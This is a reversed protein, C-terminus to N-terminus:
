AALNKKDVIATLAKFADKNFPQGMTHEIALLAERSGIPRPHKASKITLNVFQNALAVVKALPHTKLNRLKQPYGQGLANEHHQYVIALIDDPVIGLAQLMVMGKYSHTEYIQVEDYSMDVLTKELLEPPLAKKGIDHLLGGLSLKELTAKQSWGLEQGILVSLVSVAMCHRLLPQSCENLSDFIKGLDKHVNVLAVTAETVAKAQGYTAIGIGIHELEKFVSNAAASIVHIKQRASLDDKGVVVGAIAINIQTIRNYESARVWLYDVARNKYTSLQSKDTTAGAKVLLVFKTEGLRIYLDTPIKIGDIMERIPIPIMKTSPVSDKNEM